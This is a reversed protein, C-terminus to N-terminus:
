TTINNLAIKILVALANARGATKRIGGSLRPARACYSALLDATYFLLLSLLTTIRPNVDARILVFRPSSKSDVADQTM